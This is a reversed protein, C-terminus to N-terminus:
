GPGTIPTTEAPTGGVSTVLDVAIDRLKRNRGQSAARLVAFAAAADCRQQGMIIGIAQDIVSRSTLAQQLQETFQIQEAQRLAVTLVASGQAAFATAREHTASGMLVHPATAYLNLAGGTGQGTTLPLSLSSGVGHALAHAPYGDWRREALLDPVSVAQGTALTQLCPGQDLGYQVEDVAAARADSSVVTLPTNDRRMTLGCSVDLTRAAVSTLEVFFDHVGRTEALLTFLEDVGAAPAPGADSGAPTRVSHNLGSM